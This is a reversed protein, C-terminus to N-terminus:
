VTNIGVEVLGEVSDQRFRLSSIEVATGSDADKRFKGKDDDSVPAVTEAVSATAQSAGGEVVVDTIIFEIGHNAHTLTLTRNGTGGVICTSIQPFDTLIQSAIANMTDLHSVAFTIQTMSVGDIKLDITNGSVLDADFTITQIQSKGTFRMFVKDDDTVEQEVEVIASGLKLVPVDKNIEFRDGTQEGRAALAIGEFRDTDSAPLKIGNEISAEKVVGRGFPIIDSPNVFSKAFRAGIGRELGPYGIDPNNKYTDQSM